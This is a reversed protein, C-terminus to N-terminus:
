FIIYKILVEPKFTLVFHGIATIDHYGLQGCDVLDVVLTLHPTKGTVQDICIKTLIIVILLYPFFIDKFESLAVKWILINM